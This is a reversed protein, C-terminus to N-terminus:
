KCENVNIEVKIRFMNFCMFRTRQCFYNVILINEEDVANVNNVIIAHRGNCTQMLRLNQRSM